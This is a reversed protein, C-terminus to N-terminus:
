TFYHIRKAPPLITNFLAELQRPNEQRAISLVGEMYLRNILVEEATNRELKSALPSFVMFSLVAGYFTTLLAVAMAPGISDPDDLQGLMQVLGILTGVLGMAPAIEAAKRFVAAGKSHREVLSHIDQSMLQEVIEAKNGDVVMGLGKELFADVKDAAVENQLALPTQKRAIEAYRMLEMAIESPNEQQYFVTRVLLGQSRVIEPITFSATTIAFTAGIVILLSPPDIFAQTNGGLIIAAIVLAGATLIGVATSPDVMRTTSAM